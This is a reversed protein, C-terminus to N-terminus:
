RRMYADSPRLSNLYLVLNAKPRPKCLEYLVMFLLSPMRPHKVMTIVMSGLYLSMLLNLLFVLRCTENLLKFKTAFESKRPCAIGHCFGMCRQLDMSPLFITSWDKLVNHCLSFPWWEVSSTKLLMKNVSFIHIKSLIESFNTGLTGILLVGANTWIIAQRREPSLGDDSGIIALKSVFIHIVQGWHTLKWPVHRILDCRPSNSFIIM